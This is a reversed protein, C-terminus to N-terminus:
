GGVYCVARTSDASILNWCTVVVFPWSRARDEGEAYNVVSGLILDMRDVM